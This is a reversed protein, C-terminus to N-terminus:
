PADLKVPSVSPRSCPRSRKIIKKWTPLSDTCNLLGHAQLALNGVALSASSSCGGSACCVVFGLHGLGWLRFAAQSGYGGGFSRFVWCFGLASFGKFGLLALFGLVRFRGLLRSVFGLFCWSVGSFGM